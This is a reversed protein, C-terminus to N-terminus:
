TVGAGAGPTGAVVGIQAIPILIDEEHWNYESQITREKRGTQLMFDVMNIEERLFPFVKNWIDPRNLLDEGAMYQENFIQTSNRSIATGAM